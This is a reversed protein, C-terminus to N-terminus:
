VNIKLSIYDKQVHLVNLVIVNLVIKQVNIVHIEMFLHEKQVNIMVNKKM